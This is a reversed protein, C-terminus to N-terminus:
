VINSSNKFRRIDIFSSEAHVLSSHAIGINAKRLSAVVSSFKKLVTRCQIEQHQMTSKTPISYALEVAYWIRLTYVAVASQNVHHSRCIKRLYLRSQGYKTELM